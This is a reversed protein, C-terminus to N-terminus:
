LACSIVTIDAFSRRGPILTFRYEKDQLIVSHYLPLIGTAKQAEGGPLTFTATIQQAPDFWAEPNGDENLTPSGKGTVTILGRYFSAAGATQQSVPTSIVFRKAQSPDACQTDQSMGAILTGMREPPIGDAAKQNIVMLLDQIAITPLLKQIKDLAAETNGLELRMNELETSQQEFKDKNYALNRLAIDQGTDFALYSSGVVIALFLIIKIFSWIRQSRRKQLEKRHALGLSM